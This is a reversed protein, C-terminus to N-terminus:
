KCAPHKGQVCGQANLNAVLTKGGVEMLIIDFPVEKGSTNAFYTYYHYGLQNNPMREPEVHRKSKMIEFTAFLPAVKEALWQKMEADGVARQAAPAMLAEMENLEGAKASQAFRTIVAARQEDLPDAAHAGQFCSLVTLLVFLHFHKM